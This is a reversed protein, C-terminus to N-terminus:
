NRKDYLISGDVKLEVNCKDYRGKNKYVTMLAKKGASLGKYYRYITEKYDIDMFSDGYILLFNEELLDYANRIAGGTGLLMEGDYVYSIDCLQSKRLYGGLLKNIKEGTTKNTNVILGHTSSKEYSKLFDNYENGLLEQMRTLFEDHLNINNIIM